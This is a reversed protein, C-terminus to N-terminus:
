CMTEINKWIINLYYENFLINNNNYSILTKFVRFIKFSSRRATYHVFILEFDTFEVHVREIELSAIVTGLV